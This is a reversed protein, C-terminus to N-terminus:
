CRRYRDATARFSALEDQWGAVIEDPDVGKGLQTRVGTTGTLQDIWHRGTLADRHGRWAPDDDRWCTEDLALLRTLLHVGTRVLESAHPDTAHLQVGGCWRGAHWSCAPSAVMPGRPPWTRAGGTLM